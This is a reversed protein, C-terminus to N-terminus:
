AYITGCYQCYKPAGESKYYYTERGCIGCRCSSADLEDWDRGGAITNLQEDTLEVGKEQALKVLEEISINKIDM